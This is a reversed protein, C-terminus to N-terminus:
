PLYYRFSTFVMNNIAHPTFSGEGSADTARWTNKVAYSYQVGYQV